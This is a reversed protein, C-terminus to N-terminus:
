KSKTDLLVVFEEYDEGKSVKKPNMGTACFRVQVNISGIDLLVVFELLSRDIGSQMLEYNQLINTWNIHM